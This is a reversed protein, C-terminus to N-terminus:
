KIMLMKKTESYDGAELRYFYVGSPFASADWTVEYTGPSQKENVLTEIEKGLIDYVKIQVLDGGLVHPSSLEKIQYKISTTPNFPNPYNQDLSFASPVSNNSSIIGIPVLQNGKLIIGDNGAVWIDKKYTTIANIQSTAIQISTWNIGCNTTYIIFGNEGTIYIINADAFYIDSAPSASISGIWNLGGNTTVSASYTAYPPVVSGVYDIRCGILTNYFKLNLFHQNSNATNLVGWNEGGDITKYIADSTVAFGTLYDPFTLKGSSPLQSKYIWNNGFNSTNYIKSDSRLLYGYGNTFFKISTIAATDPLSFYTWNTGGNSTKFVKGNIGGIWGTNSNIFFMSKLVTNNWILSDTSIWNSGSNTTKLLLKNDALAYQVLSDTAIICSIKNNFFRKTTSIWNSGGNSTKLLDGCFGGIYSVSNNISEIRRQRIKSVQLSDIINWTNGFDTTKSFKNNGTAFGTNTNIFDFFYNDSINIWNNGSNSSKFQSEFKIIGNNLDKFILKYPECYDVYIGSSYFAYTWNNGSNETKFVSYSNFSPSPPNHGVPHFKHAALWGVSDNLFYILNINGNTTNFNLIWNTGGNTTKYLFFGGAYGTNQNIFFIDTISDSAPFNVLSWNNGSNTSKILTGSKGGLWCTYYISDFKFFEASVIDQNSPLNEIFWNSGGNTTKYNKSLSSFFWGTNNDIFKIANVRNGHPLPNQWMWQSFSLNCFFSFYVVAILLSKKM